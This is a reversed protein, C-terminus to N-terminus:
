DPFVNLARGVFQTFVLLLTHTTFNTFALTTRLQSEILDLSHELALGTGFVESFAATIFGDISEGLSSARSLRYHNGLCNPAHQWTAEPLGLIFLISNIPGSYISTQM